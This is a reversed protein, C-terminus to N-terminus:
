KLQFLFIELATVSGIGTILLLLSVAYGFKAMREVGPGVAARWAGLSWWGSPPLRGELLGTKFYKANLASFIMLIIGFSWILIRLYLILQDMFTSLPLTSSNITEILDTIHTHAFLFLSTLILVTMLLPAWFAPDRRSRIPVWETPTRRNMELRRDVMLENQGLLRFLM